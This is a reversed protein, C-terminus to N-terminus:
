DGQRFGLVPMINVDRDQDDLEEVKKINKTAQTLLLGRFCLAASAIVKGDRDCRNFIALVPHSPALMAFSANYRVM